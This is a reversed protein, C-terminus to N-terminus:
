KKLHQIIQDLKKQNELVQDLKKQNELVQDLKKQNGVIKEQNGLIKEQNSIITKLNAEIGDSNEAAIASMSFVSIVALTLFVTRMKNELNNSSLIPFFIPM